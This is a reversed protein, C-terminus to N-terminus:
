SQCSPVEQVCIAGHAYEYVVHGKAPRHTEHLDCLRHRLLGRTVLYLSQAQTLNLASLTEEDVWAGQRNRYSVKFKRVKM